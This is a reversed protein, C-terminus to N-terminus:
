DLVLDGFHAQSSFGGRGPSWTSNVTTGGAKRSRCLQLGWIDGVSPPEPCLARLPIMIEAQWVNAFRKASVTWPLTVTGGRTGVANVIFQTASVHGPALRVEVSDDSWVRDGEKTIAARLNSMLPEDCIFGIYLSDRHLGLKVRTQVDARTPRNLVTFDSVEAAGRWGDPEIRDDIQPGQALRPVVM